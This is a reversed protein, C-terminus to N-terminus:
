GKPVGQVFPREASRSESGSGAGAGDPRVGILGAIEAWELAASDDSPSRPKAQGM